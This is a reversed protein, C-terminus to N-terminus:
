WCDTPQIKFGFSPGFYLQHWGPVGKGFSGFGQYGTTLKGNFIIPIKKGFIKLTAKWDLDMMVEGGLNKNPLFHHPIFEVPLLQYATEEAVQDEFFPSGPILSKVGGEVADKAGSIDILSYGHSGDYVFGFYARTALRMRFLNKKGWRLDTKQPFFIRLPDLGLQIGFKKDGGKQRRDALVKNLVLEGKEKKDSFLFNVLNGPQLFYPGSRLDSDGTYLRLSAVGLQLTFSKTNRFGKFTMVPVKLDGTSITKGKLWGNVGPLNSFRELIDDTIQLGPGLAWHDKTGWSELTSFGWIVEESSSFGIDSFRSKKEEQVKKGKKQKLELRPQQKLLNTDLIGRALLPDITTKKGVSQANAPVTALFAVVWLLLFFKRVM